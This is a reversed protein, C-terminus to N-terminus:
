EGIAGEEGIVIERRQEASQIVADIVKQVEYGDQFTPIRKLILRREAERELILDVWKWIENRKTLRWPRFREESPEASDDWQDM